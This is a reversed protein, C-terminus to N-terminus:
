EFALMMSFSELKESNVEHNVAHLVIKRTQVYMFTDTRTTLHFATSRSIKFTFEVPNQKFIFSAQLM